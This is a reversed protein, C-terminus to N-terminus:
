TKQKNTQKLNKLKSLYFSLFCAVLDLVQISTPWTLTRHRLWWEVWQDWSMLNKLTSIELLNKMNGQRQQSERTHTYNGMSVNPHKFDKDCLKVTLTTMINTDTSKGKRM